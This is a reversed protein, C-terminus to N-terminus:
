QPAILTTIRVAAALSEPRGTRTYV